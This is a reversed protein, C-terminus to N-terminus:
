SPTPRVRIFSAQDTWRPDHCRARPQSQVRANRCILRPLGRMKPWTSSTRATIPAQPDALHPGGTECVAPRRYRLETVGFPTQRQTGDAAWGHREYFRRARDNGLLVWLEHTRGAVKLLQSGIGTSWHEPLVYIAHLEQDDFAVFGVPEDAHSRVAVHLEGAFNRWRAVTLEWPFPDDAPFIGAYARTASDRHIAAVLDREDARAPRIMVGAVLM